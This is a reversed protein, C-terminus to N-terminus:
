PDILRFPHNLVRFKLVEAVSTSCLSNHGFIRQWRNYMPIVLQVALRLTSRLVTGGELFCADAVCDWGNPDSNGTEQDRFHRIV